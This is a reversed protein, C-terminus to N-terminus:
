TPLMQKESMFGQLAEAEQATCNSQTRLGPGCLASFLPVWLGWPLRQLAQPPGPAQAKDSCPGGPGGHAKFPSGGCDPWEGPPAGGCEAM